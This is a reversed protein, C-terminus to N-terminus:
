PAFEAVLATQLRSQQEPALKAGGSTLYFVDIATQGETDILAIEINCAERAFQSSIRYLLGPQDQAIVEVLTSHASCTNDFHIQTEVKVKPARNQKSRLRDRLMRELDLKGLLGDHISVKFREWESLNLELTRFTDTFYFMDVVIGAQNSFASAKVINMGWAALIGTMTAFLFPRDPTVLILEYWHRGRRLDLQVPDGGLKAAMDAHAFVDGAAHTLLYRRPLGELFTEVHKGTAPALTRLHELVEDHADVHFRQDLSRNLHNAAAIYLQWINEAKWPSLAEPNVAKIDAYTLLCLMKLREPTEVKAAFARVTEPDFIDRRLAASMELHRGVLFIVSERDLADLDLRDLAAEALDQSVRVHDSTKAAKGTDHLLIALYLLDPQELEELLEAYRQDWKAQSQRLAHLNEIAVFTHEDVTFRHSYDRVVLSDIGGFEPLLITLVGLSHMARLADAAHPGLLIEQLVHWLESGEPRDAVLSPLAEEIQAETVSSLSLGHRALFRFVRLILQPDTLNEPQRLFVMDDAVSFEANSLRSRMTQFQRYLSPREAPIEFLLQTCVRHVTRAYGFYIRMWDSATLEGGNAVGIQAAAAEAQADWALVNDDRSHRFHLFCRVSMLFELAAGLKNRQSPAFFTPPDPWAQQKAMASILALWYAVNYDRLGGAGDKVNPELHFLTGGFKSHRSRALEALRTLFVQSERAVLKPIVGDHLRAFLQQDGALYRCDLLSIAFELNDPDMRDCESLTRSAPSLKLRLDWLEQSFRRIPEKIKAETKNGAHLFLLDIDSYPFLWKRGYGGLAILAFDKPEEPDPSIIESWAKRAVSDVLETRGALFLSGERTAAFEEKLRASEKSYLERLEAALTPNTAM